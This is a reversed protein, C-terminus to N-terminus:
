RNRRKGYMAHMRSRAPTERRNYAPYKGTMAYSFEEFARTVDKNSAGVGYFARGFERVEFGFKRQAKQQKSIKRTM